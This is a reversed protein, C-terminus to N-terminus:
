KGNQPQLLTPNRSELLIRVQDLGTEGAFAVGMQDGEMNIVDLAEPDGELGRGTEDPYVLEPLGLIADSARLQDGRAIVGIIPRDFQVGGEPGRGLRESPNFHMLYSDVRTGAQLIKVHTDYASNTGTKYRDFTVELPQELLVNRRELVLAVEGRRDNVSTISASDGETFGFTSPPVAFWHVAETTSIVGPALVPAGFGEYDPVVWNELKGQPTFHAAQATTLTRKAQAQSESEVDVEGDFVHVDAGTAGVRVGFQTGRDIVDMGPTTVRFGHANDPVEAFLQGDSLEIEMASRLVVDTKGQLVVRVGSVLRLEVSGSGLQLRQGPNLKGAPPREQWQANSVEVMEGIGNSGASWVGLFLALVAAAATALVAIRRFRRSTASLPFEIPEDLEAPEQDTGLTGRASKRELDQHLQLTQLYTIRAAPDDRMLEELEAIVAEDALGDAVRQALDEIKSLESM